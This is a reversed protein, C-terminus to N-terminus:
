YSVKSAAITFCFRDTTVNATDPKYEGYFAKYLYGRAYQRATLEISDWQTSNIYSPVLIYLRMQYGTKNTNDCAYTPPALTINAIKMAGPPIGKVNGSPTDYGMGRMSIAFEAGDRAAALAKNLEMERLITPFISFVIVIIVGTLIVLEISTQGRQEKMVNRGHLSRLALKESM